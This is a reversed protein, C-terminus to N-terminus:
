KTPYIRKYLNRTVNKPTVGPPRPTEMVATKWTDSARVTPTEMEYIAVYKPSGEIAAYRSAGTVGPVELLAPVHEDNYWANFQAEVEPDVDMRVVYLYKASLGMIEVVLYSVCMIMISTQTDRSLHM